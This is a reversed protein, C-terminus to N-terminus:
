FDKFPNSPQEKIVEVVKKESAPTLKLEAQLKRQQEVIGKIKDVSKNDRWLEQSGNVFLEVVGRTLIDDYLNFKMQELLAINNVLMISRANLEDEKELEEALINFIVKAEERTIYPDPKYKM